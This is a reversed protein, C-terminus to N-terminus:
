AAPRSLSSSVGDIVTKETTNLVGFRPNLQVDIAGMQELYAKSGLRQAVIQQTAVDYAVTKAAPVDLLAALNSGALVKDRQGDTVAINNAAAIEEAIRGHILVNVVAETAVQQGDELTEQVGGVATDLQTQTIVQDGVYAVNGGRFGACGSAVVAVVLLLGFLRGWRARGGSVRGTM